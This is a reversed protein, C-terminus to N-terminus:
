DRRRRRQREYRINCGIPVTERLTVEKGALTAQLADKLYHTKIDKGSPSDDFSGQYVLKRQQDFVFFEPTRTAGFAKAIKQSPDYLYPFEFGKDQARQKMADLQDEAVKNVNIAILQVTGDPYAKDLALLRDEVDVAYPCSNCTFAVVVCKAEAVDAAAHRKGDVGELAEWRPMADGPSLVRNFEGAFGPSSAGCVLSSVIFAAALSSDILRM